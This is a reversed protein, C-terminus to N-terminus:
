DDEGYKYIIEEKQERGIMELCDYEGYLVTGGDMQEIVVNESLIQGAIMQKELYDAAFAELQLQTQRISVPTDGQEYYTWTQEILAIPLRFGGPLTWFNELYMKGCSSDLISSDNYFNITKKGILLSYKTEQKILSGRYIDPEPAFILIAHQTQAYIEGEARAAQITIGTDTYGSILIEGTRVAQGPTCILNGQTAVGSMIVGDCGAIINSVTSKEDNEPAAPRERVCITAVCGNTNVGAWKLEPIAELLANKVQESRVDVRSAWFRIGCRSAEELILKEPVTHNGDVNVFLVKTPLVTVLFLLLLLGFIFVPRKVFSRISWYLGRTDIIDITEGRKTVIKQIKPLDQKRVQATVSLDEANSLTFLEIGNSNLASLLGELDAATLRIQVTGFFLKLNDKM